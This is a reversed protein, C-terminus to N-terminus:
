TRLKPFTVSPLKSIGSYEKFFREEFIFLFSLLQQSQAVHSGNSTCIAASICCLVNKWV